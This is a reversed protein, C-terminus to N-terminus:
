ERESVEFILESTDGTVEDDVINEFAKNPEPYGRRENYAIVDKSVDPADGQATCREDFKRWFLGDFAEDASEHAGDDKGDEPSHVEALEVVHDARYMVQPDVDPTSDLTNRIGDKDPPLPNNPLGDSGKKRGEYTRM